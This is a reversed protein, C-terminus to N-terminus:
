IQEKVGVRKCNVHEKISEPRLTVRSKLPSKQMAPNVVNQSAALGEPSLGGERIKWTKTPVEEAFNPLRKAIKLPPFVVM